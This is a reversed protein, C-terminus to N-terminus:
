GIHSPIRTLAYSLIRTHARTHSLTHMLSSSPSLSLSLFHVHIHTYLFDLLSCVLAKMITVKLSHSQPVSM